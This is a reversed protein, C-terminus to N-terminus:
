QPTASLLFLVRRKTLFCQVVMHTGILSYHRDPKVHKEVFHQIGWTSCDRGRCISIYNSDSRSSVNIGDRVEPLFRTLKEM